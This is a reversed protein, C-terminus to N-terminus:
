LISQSEIFPVSILRRDLCAFIKDDGVTCGLLHGIGLFYEFACFGNFGFHMDCLRNFNLM